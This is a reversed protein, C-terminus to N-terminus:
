QMGDLQKYLRRLGPYLRQYIRSYLERYAETNKHEPKFVEKYHVMDDIAEEYNDFAGTGVYGIIAAGLGSTEYTKGKHVPLGFMDATIQCVTDSQSGGGSVMVREIKTHSSKEIKDKGDMLAFNIGEIIARYLHARTHVDGFGVISGRAEPTRLGPGWYPQLMLGQCGPPIDKLHENMLEEPPIGLREAEVIEKHCFEKKFWSIMWYGRFVEVEPNFQGPVAAVYAPMFTIPEMYKGTTTQITATTGFSLSVTDPSLCGVGLTECGKDSAGAIVPMGEPLGTQVAAEPTISGIVEGPEVLDPLKDREVGFIDWKSNLNSRPWCMHKYDFPIHGIQSAVSDVYKGTLRHTFFGSLLLYKDTRKWVEPENEKIWNAKSKRRVEQITRGMGALAFVLGDLPKLPKECKAMRQDLWLIAPRLPNGERDVCICTDRQTTVVVGTIQKWLETNKEKLQLCAACANEWYVEPDQEAWGPRPSTYAPEFPIKEKALLEGSRDFVLARVSQTGCDISLIYGTNGKNM